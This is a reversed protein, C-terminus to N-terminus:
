MDNESDEDSLEFTLKFDISDINDPIEALVDETIDDGTEFDVLKLTDVAINKLDLVKKAPTEKKEVRKIKFSM